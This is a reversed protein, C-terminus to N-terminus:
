RLKEPLRFIQIWVRQLPHGEESQWEDFLLDVNHEKIHAKEFAV